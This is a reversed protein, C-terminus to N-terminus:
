LLKVENSRNARFIIEGRLKLYAVAEETWRAEDSDLGGLLYWGGDVPRGYSKVLARAAALAITEGLRHRKGNVWMLKGREYKTVVMSRLWQPPWEADVIALSLELKADQFRNALYGCARHVTLFGDGRGALIARGADVLQQRAELDGNIWAAKLEIDREPTIVM